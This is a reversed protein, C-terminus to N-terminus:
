QMKYWFTKKRNQMGKETDLKFWEDIKENVKAPDKWKETLDEQVRARVYNEILDFNIKIIERLGVDKIASLDSKVHLVDKNNLTPLQGRFWNMSLGLMSCEKIRM